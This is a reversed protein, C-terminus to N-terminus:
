LHKETTPWLQPIRIQYVASSIAVMQTCLGHAFDMQFQSDNHPIKVFIADLTLVM